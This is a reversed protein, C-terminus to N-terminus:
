RGLVLSIDGKRSEKGFPQGGNDELDEGISYIVAKGDATRGLKMSRGTFPDAPAAPLYAPVLSELKDPFAGQRLRYRWMAAALVALRHEADAKAARDSLHSLAPLVMSTLVGGLRGRHVEESLRKWEQRSEHYPLASLQEHRRMWQRYATVDGSWLFVRYPAPIGPFGQNEPAGAATPDPMTFLSLGFAAEMRLSRHLADNFSQFPNLKLHELDEGAPAARALVDELAISAQEEL